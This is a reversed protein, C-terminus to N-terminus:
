LVKTLFYRSYTQEGIIHQVSTVVFGSKLYLDRAIPNNTAIDLTLMGKQRAISFCENLMLTAIHKGRYQKLTAIFSIYGKRTKTNNAYLIAMGTIEGKFSCMVVIGYTVVKNYYDIPNVRPFLPPTFDKEVLEIFSYFESYDIFQEAKCIFNDM